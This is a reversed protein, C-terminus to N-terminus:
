KRKELAADLAGEVDDAVERIAVALGYVLETKNKIQKTTDAAQKLLADLLDPIKGVAEVRMWRPAENFFWEEESDHEPLAYHGSRKRLAIGWENRIKTYGVDRSWWDGNGEYGSLRAWASVGLNLKKLSENLLSIAQGLEDSAINLDTAAVALQKYSSQVRAAPRVHPSVQKAAM